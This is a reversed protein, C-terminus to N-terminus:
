NTQLAFHHNETAVFHPFLLFETGM